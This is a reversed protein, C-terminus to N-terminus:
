GNGIRGTAATKDTTADAIVNQMSVAGEGTVVKKTVKLDVPYSADPAGIRYMVLNSSAADELEFFDSPMGARIWCQRFIGANIPGNRNNPDGDDYEVIAVKRGLARACQVVKKLTINGPNNLLQSIRGESLKLKHALTKQNVGTEKMADEIQRVFDAGIRYLFDDAHKETWHKGHDRRGKM